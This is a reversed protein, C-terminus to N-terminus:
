NDDNHLINRVLSAVIEPNTKSFEGIERKLIAEKSTGINADTLSAVQFEEPEAPTSDVKVDESSEASPAKNSIIM